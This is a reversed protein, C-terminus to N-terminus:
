KSFEIATQKKFDSLVDKNAAKVGEDVRRLYGELPVRIPSLVGDTRGFMMKKGSKLVMIFADPQFFSGKSVGNATQRWAGKKFQALVDNEGIWFSGTQAGRGRANLRRRKTRNRRFGTVGINNDAAIASSIIKNLNQLFNNGVKRNIRDVQVSKLGITFVTSKQVLLTVEIGM